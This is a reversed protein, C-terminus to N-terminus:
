GASRHASTPEVTTPVGDEWAASSTGAAALRELNAEHTKRDIRYASVFGIAALFLITV